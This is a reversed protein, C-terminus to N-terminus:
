STSLIKGMEVLKEVTLVDQPFTTRVMTQHGISLCAKIYQSKEMGMRGAYEAIGDHLAAPVRISIRYDPLGNM